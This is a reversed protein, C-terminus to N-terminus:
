NAAAPSTKAGKLADSLAKAVVEDARQRTKMTEAFDASVAKASEPLKEWEAIAAALNGSNLNAEIRATIADVSEGEVMGVPRAEVLGEASAWLRDLIGANPDVERTTAVIKAAVDGFQGALTAVTPVGKAAAARLAEANEPTPAVAVYTDLEMAFPGGRDLASKLGTAAMALAMNAQGSTDNIKTELAALRDTAGTVAAAQQETASLKAELDTIRADLGSTDASGGAGASKRVEDVSQKILSMEHSLASVQEVAKKANEVAGNLALEAGEGLDPAPPRQQLAAIQQQIGSLDAKPSPLLGLWQLAAVGVLAALGGIVGAALRGFRDDTKTAVAAPIENAPRASSRGFERATDTAGATSSMTAEQRDKAATAPEPSPTARTRTAAPDFGVPEAAPTPKAKVEPKGIESSELDITVPKRASKSHRPVSSKAM